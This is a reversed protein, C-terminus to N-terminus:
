TLVVSKIRNSVEADTAQASMFYCTGAGGQRVDNVTPTNSSDFVNALPTVDTWSRFFNTGSNLNNTLTTKTTTSSAYPDQFLVDIGTFDTDM